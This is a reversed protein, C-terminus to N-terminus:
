LATDTQLAPNTTQCPEKACMGRKTHCWNSITETDNGINHLRHRISSKQHMTESSIYKMLASCTGSGEPMVKCCTSFTPWLAKESSLPKTALIKDLKVFIISRMVLRYTLHWERQKQKKSCM